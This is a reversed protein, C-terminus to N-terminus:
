DQVVQVVVATVNDKGGALVATQVLCQAVDDLGEGLKHRLILQIEEDDIEGTLGDSCLLFVDDAKVPHLAVTPEVDALMGVAKYLINDPVGRAKLEAVTKGDIKAYQEILSHDVTMRELVDERLRYCRSDGLHGIVIVDGKDALRLAVVTTGMGKLKPDAKAMEHIQQNVWRLSLDLMVVDRHGTLVPRMLIAQTSTGDKGPSWFGRLLRTATSSAVEGAQHGGMGDAVIAIGREADGLWSDENGQRRRGVDSAGGIALRM